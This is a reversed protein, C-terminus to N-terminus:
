SQQTSKSNNDSISDKLILKYMSEINELNKDNKCDELLFIKIFEIDTYIKFPQANIFVYNLVPAIDDEGVEKDEGENFKILNIINTMIKKICNLKQNPTKANNIKEFENLIDPMMSDYIYDKDSLLFSENTSLLVTKKYIKNDIEDPEPPYIKEYIKDMIYDELKELYIDIVDKIKDKKTLEKKIIDFYNNIKTNINLENIITFPNKEQAIQYKSLDPFCRTFSEITKLSTIKKKHNEFTLKDEFQKKNINSKRLEFKKEKDDYNFSIDVPIFSEEAIQKIKENINITNMLDKVNEFYNIMKDIFKTKNRFVILKEFDLLDISNNLDETLECFLKKFDNKKYDEPIKNLYELISNIYWTSPITNNSLIFNPLSMYLKIENLMKKTDSTTGINFDSKNLLRFDGLSSCLYKKVKMINKLNEDLNSKNKGEKKKKNFYFDVFKNNISFLGKYKKEIEGDNYIYYNEIVFEKDKEKEKDKIKSKLNEKHRMLIANDTSLIQNITKETKLRQFIKFFTPDILNQEKELGQILCIINNINFCISISAYIEDQNETFFDYLYNNPLKNKACLEIFQPLNINTSKDLFQLIKEIKDIFYLNFPTYDREITDNVFLKGSFLKALIFNMVKINKLTNRSVVFDSILANFSPFSMIPNLLKGILFRSIFSFEEIKSINNFKNRILISIIKCICKISKPLLLISKILDEILQDIFSIVELFDNQYIYLLSQSYKTDFLNKMLGKNSYLDSTKKSNTDEKFKTFYDYLIQNKQEKAKEAFTVFEKNGIDPTYKEMFLKNHKECKKKSDEISSNICQDTVKSNVIQSIIDYNNVNYNKSNKEEKQILETFEKERELVNFNIERSSSNREIKEVTKLIVNKFYIQIDPIKQIQELLYGCKTNELFNDVQNINELKNIEDKLMLTFIYLLNNEIYNGSLHNCYFNNVIFPAVNEKVKELDTNILIKYVLEPHNWLNKLLKHILIKNM